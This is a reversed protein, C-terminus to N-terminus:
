EAKFLCYLTESIYIDEPTFTKEMNDSISESDEMCLMMENSRLISASALKEEFPMFSTKICKITKFRAATAIAKAKTEAVTFAEALVKNKYEDSNKVEFTLAYVPPCELKAVLAIFKTMKQLDYDFKINANQAFEFCDFVKEFDYQGYQNKEKKKISKMKEAVKFSRTKMEEKKLGVAKLVEGMFAVVSRTGEELVKEYKQDKVKFTLDISICEPAFYKQATGQTTIEMM